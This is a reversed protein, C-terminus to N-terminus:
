IWLFLFVLIGSFASMWLDKKKLGSTVLSPNLTFISRVIFQLLFWSYVFKSKDNVPSDFDLKSFAIFDRTLGCSSCM